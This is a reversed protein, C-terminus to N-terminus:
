AADRPIEPVTTTASVAKRRKGYAAIGVSLDRETDRRLQHVDSWINGCDQETRATQM